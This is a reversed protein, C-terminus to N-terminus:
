VRFYTASGLSERDPEKGGLISVEQHRYEDFSSPGVVVIKCEVLGKRSHFPRFGPFVTGPNPMASNILGVVLFGQADLAKQCDRMHALEKAEGEPYFWDIQIERKRQM